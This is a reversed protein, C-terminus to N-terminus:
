PRRLHGALPVEARVLDPVKRFIGKLDCEYLCFYGMCVDPADVGCFCLLHRTNRLNNCVFVYRALVPDRTKDGERGVLSVAPVARDEAVLFYELVAVRDGHDACIRYLMRFRRCLCHLDIQFDKRSIHGCGLCHSGIGDLDMGARRVDVILGVTDLSVVRSRDHLASRIYHFHFCVTGTLRMQRDLRINRVSIRILLSPDCDMGFGDADMQM